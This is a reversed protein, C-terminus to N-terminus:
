LFPFKQFSLKLFKGLTPLLSPLALVPVWSEWAEPGMPGRPCREGCGNSPAPPLPIYEIGRFAEQRPGGSAEEPDQKSGRPCRRSVPCNTGQFRMSQCCRLVIQPCSTPPSGPPPCGCGELKRSGAEAQILETRPLAPFWAQSCIGMTILLLPRPSQSESGASPRLCSETLVWKYPIPLLAPFLQSSNQPHQYTPTADESHFSFETTAEM